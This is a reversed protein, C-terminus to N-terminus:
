VEFGWVWLLGSREDKRGKTRKDKRGKTRKDKRGKTREDKRGKSREDKQGKTREDKQGKTREDKRGKTREDKRGKTREDKRGHDPATVPTAYLEFVGAGTILVQVFQGTRLSCSKKILVENDVEPSDYETRGVYYEPEEGDIIVKMQRGVKRNNLEQSIDAQKEMLIDARGQKEEEPIPDGLGYARTDEEPSYTFVGLRDFQMEEVFALLEQFAEPTEGPYGLMLTTRIAMGPVKERMTKLLVLTEAKGHGRRMSQLLAENIHQLPIDLYNCIKPSERMLDLVEPPFKNPYAYHLRIWEIGEVRCLDRLLAPLEPRGTIDLGYYSLDQAVLILEKVGKEALGSAEQLLRGAPVSRHKGRIAPIACFSCTRDCGESIKLYAYHTPTTIVREASDADFQQHLWALLDEPDRAGFWAAVEPIERSLEDRYRQSLCGTVVVEGVLRNKAADVVDLITDISEERADQIFGCTNIVVVDAPTGSDHTVVFREPSLQGMIKESDVVNKSCGLTIVNISLKQKNPRM